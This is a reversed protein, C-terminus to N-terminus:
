IILMRFTSPDSTFFQMSSKSERNGANAGNQQLFCPLTTLRFGYRKVRAPTQLIRVAYIFKMFRWELKAFLNELTGCVSRKSQDSLFRKASHLSVRFSLLRPSLTSM